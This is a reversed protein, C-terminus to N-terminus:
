TLGGLRRVYEGPGIAVRAVLAEQGSCTKADSTDVTEYEKGSSRM